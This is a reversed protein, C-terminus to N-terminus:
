FALRGCGGSCWLAGIACSIGITQAQSEAKTQATHVHTHTHTHIHIHTHTTHIHVQHHPLGMPHSHILGHQRHLILLIIIETTKISMPHFFTLSLARPNHCTHHSLLLKALTIDYWTMASEM